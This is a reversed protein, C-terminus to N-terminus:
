GVAEVPRYFGQGIIDGTVADIIYKYDTVSGSFQVKYCMKGDLKIMEAEANSAKDQSIGADAFAISKAEAYGIFDDNFLTCGRLPSIMTFCLLLMVIMQAFAKRLQKRQKAEQAKRRDARSTLAPQPEPTPEAKKKAPRTNLHRGGNGLGESGKRM